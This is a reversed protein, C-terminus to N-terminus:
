SKKESSHDERMNERIRDIASWVRVEASKSDRQQNESLRESIAQHTESRGVRGNLIALHANIEDLGNIIRRVGWWLIVGVPVVAFSELLELNMDM